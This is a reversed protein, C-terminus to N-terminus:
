HVPDSLITGIVFISNGSAIALTQDLEDPELLLIGSEFHVICALARSRSFNRLTLHRDYSTSVWPAENLPAEVVKLSITAGDLQLYVRTAATLADLALLHTKSMPWKEALQAVYNIGAANVNDALPPEIPHQYAGHDIRFTDRLGHCQKSEEEEEDNHEQPTQDKWFVTGPQSVM